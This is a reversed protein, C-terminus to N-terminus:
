PLIHCRYTLIHCRKTLRYSMVIHSHSLERNVFVIDRLLICCIYTLHSMYLIYSDRIKRYPHSKTINFDSMQIYYHSVQLTLIHGTHLNAVCRQLFIVDRHFSTIDTHLFTVYIHVLYANKYLFLNHTLHFFTSNSM